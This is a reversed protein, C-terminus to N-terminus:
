QQKDQDLFNKSKRLDMASKPSVISKGTQKELEIRAQKAVNGGEKAIKKNADLGKPNKAKSIETVSAEALM